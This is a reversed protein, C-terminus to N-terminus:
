KHQFTVKYLFDASNGQVLATELDMRTGDPSLRAETKFQKIGGRGREPATIWEALARQSGQESVTSLLSELKAERQPSAAVLIVERGTNKDLYFWHKEDQPVWIAKGAPVPNEQATVKPDPFLVDIKGSADQQFIYVYSEKEPEFFIGYYDGSNMSEGDKLVSVTNGNRKMVALRLALPSSTVTKETSSEVTQSNGGINWWGVLALLFGLGAILSVTAARWSVKSRSAVLSYTPTPQSSAERLRAGQQGQNGAQGIDPTSHRELANVIITSREDEGRLIAALADQVQSAGAPRDPPAKALLREVLARLNAPVASPLPAPLVSLHQHMLAEPTSAAFPPRGTLMEYTIVGLAYLDTRGDEGAGRWQEPAMYSPTGPSSQGVQTLGVTHESLIKAIGFDGIKVWDYGQQQEVFINPPKLDRHVVPDPLSHAETLAECLQSAIRIVREIPLSGHQRLVQRLTPGNIYEMVFYLQGDEGQGSDHVMVTHPNRLQTAVRVERLFRKAFAPDASLERRMTKLAIQRLTRGEVDLQEALSVTGMAGEGLKALLRYKGSIVKRSSQEAM